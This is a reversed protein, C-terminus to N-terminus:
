EADYASGSRHPTFRGSTQSFVSDDNCPRERHSGRNGHNGRGGQPPQEKSFEFEFQAPEPREVKQPQRMQHEKRAKAL